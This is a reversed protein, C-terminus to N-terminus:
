THAPPGRRDNRLCPLRPPQRYRRAGHRRLSPGLGSGVLLAPDAAHRLVSAGAVVVLDELGELAPQGQGPRLHLGDPRAVDGQLVSVGADVATLRPQDPCMDGRVLVGRAIPPEFRVAGALEQEVALLQVLQRTPNGLLREGEHGERDVESVAPGLDLECEGAPAAEVVLAVGDCFALRRPLRGADDLFVVTRSAWTMGRRASGVHGAMTASMRLSYSLGLVRRWHRLYRLSSASCLPQCCGSWIVAAPTTAKTVFGRASPLGVALLGARRRM